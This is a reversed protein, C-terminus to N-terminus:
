VTESHVAQVELPRPSTPFKVFEHCFEAELLRVQVVLCVCLTVDIAINRGSSIHTRIESENHHVALIKELEIAVPTSLWPGFSAGSHKVFDVVNGPIVRAVDLAGLVEQPFYGTLLALQAGIFVGWLPDHGAVLECISDLVGTLRPPDM